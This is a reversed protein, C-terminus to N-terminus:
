AHSKDVKGATAPRGRFIFLEGTKEGQGALLGPPFYENVAPQASIAAAHEDSGVTDGEIAPCRLLRNVFHAGKVVQLKPMGVHFPINLVERLAQRVRRLERGKPLRGCGSRGQACRWKARRRKRWGKSWNPHQAAQRAGSCDYNTLRVGSSGM